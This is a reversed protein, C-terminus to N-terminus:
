PGNERRHEPDKCPTIPCEVRGVRNQLKDCRDACTSCMAWAVVDGPGTYATATLSHADRGCCSCTVSKQRLMEAYTIAM